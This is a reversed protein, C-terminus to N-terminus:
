VGQPLQGCRRWGCVQGGGNPARWSRIVVGPGPAVGEDEREVETVLFHPRAEDWSGLLFLLWAKGVLTREDVLLYGGEDM